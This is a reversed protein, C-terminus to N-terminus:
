AVGSYINYVMVLDTITVKGDFNVDGYPIWDPNAVPMGSYINYVVVLDTITVKGDGNVDGPLRQSAIIIIDFSFSSIGETYHSVSLTLTIQLVEQPDVQQVNYNWRLTIYNSAKSPNWNTTSMILFVPEEKQNRIYVVINRSSGPTLTGWDISSV